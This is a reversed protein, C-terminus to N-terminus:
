SLEEYVLLPDKLSHKSSATEPDPMKRYNSSSHRFDLVVHKFIVLLLEAKL